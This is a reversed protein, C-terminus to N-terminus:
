LKSILVLLGILIASSVNMVVMAITLKRKLRQGNLQASTSNRTTMARIKPKGGIKWILM